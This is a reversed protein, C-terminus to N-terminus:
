AAAPERPRGPDLRGCCGLGGQEPRHTPAAQARGAGGAQHVSLLDAALLHAQLSVISIPVVTAQLCACQGQKHARLLNVQKVVDCRRHVTDPTWRADLAKGCACFHVYTRDGAALVSYPLKLEPAEASQLWECCGRAESPPVGEGQM